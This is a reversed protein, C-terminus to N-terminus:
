KKSGEKPNDPVKQFWADPSGPYQLRQGTWDILDKLLFDGNKEQTIHDLWSNEGRFLYRTYKHINSQSKKPLVHSNFTDIFEKNGEKLYLPQQQVRKTLREKYRAEKAARRRETYEEDDGVEHDTWDDQDDVRKKKEKPAVMKKKKKNKGSSLDLKRRAGLTIIEDEPTRRLM